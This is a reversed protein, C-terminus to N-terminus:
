IRTLNGTESDIKHVVFKDDEEQMKVWGKALQKLMGLGITYEGTPKSTKYRFNLENLVESPKYKSLMRWFELTEKLVEKSIVIRETGVECQIADAPEGYNANLVIIAGAAVEDGYTTNEIPLGTVDCVNRIDKFHM